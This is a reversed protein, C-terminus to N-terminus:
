NIVRIRLSQTRGRIGVELASGTCCSLASANAANWLDETVVVSSRQQKAVELLRSAVNVTDGTATVHQHHASGLRSVVVPGLHGGIRASLKDRAVPPLARLWTAISKHLQMITSLARSADDPMPKPLGFLIMAGDGMFTVVYGDHEVVDREVLAQFDALLDRAWQPGLTEAVGTFGSLDLFVVAVDQHVPQELFGPNKLIYEVLLPSQFKALAAKDSTLRRAVHRDFALHVLGYTTAVPVVAALPVAISLWYGALFAAFTSAGWTAFVVGALGLGLISRRISMLLVIIAPLVIATSADIKRILSTRILGDGAIINSVATAFIEVGPVVRDFPTAFTDGLAIATAGLLVIQGRVDNLDLNGRLARAASFQRISGRPGYYRIPLHYGLDMSVTRSALKLTGPGLMPETHLAVSSVALAFSPVITDGSHFIMPVHRPIGSHDTALNVLGSRSADRVAAIPWRIQSPTPVGAFEGSQIRVDQSAPSRERDFMGIAAVVSKTSRLAEALESDTDPRGSDLFLIDIAIAQPDLAALERIIRALVSRPLPYGGAELVTDDDIAALVVGRPAAQAGALLFRWDLTLNELPDLGSGIGAVQRAGLFGGWVVGILVFTCALLTEFSPRAFRMM